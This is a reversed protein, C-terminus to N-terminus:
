SVSTACYCLNLSIIIQYTKRQMEEKKNENEVSLGVKLHKKIIM